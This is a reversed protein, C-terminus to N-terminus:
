QEVEQECVFVFAIQYEGACGPTPPPDLEALITDLLQNGGGKQYWFPHGEIRYSETNLASRIIKM